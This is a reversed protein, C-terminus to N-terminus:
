EILNLTRLEEMSVTPPMEGKELKSIVLQAVKRADRKNSFGATGPMGPRNPQHIFVKSDKIIDYGWTNGPAQIINYSFVTQPNIISISKNFVLPPCAHLLISHFIIGFFIASSVKIKMKFCNLFFSQHPKKAIHFQNM